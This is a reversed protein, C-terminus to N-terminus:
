QDVPMAPLAPPEGDQPRQWQEIAPSFDLQYDPIGLGAGHEVVARYQEPEGRDVIFVRESFVVYHTTDNRFDAYWHDPQLAHSLLDAVAAADNDPIEITHLTWQALWPTRHKGTVPEVRTSVITLRELVLRDRLSEEIVVGRFSM